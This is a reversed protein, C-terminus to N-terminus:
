RQEHMCTYFKRKFICFLMVTLHLFGSTIGAVKQVAPASSFDLYTSAIYDNRDLTTTLSPLDPWSEMDLPTPQKQLAPHGTPGDSTPEALVPVTAAENDNKKQYGAYVLTGDNKTDNPSMPDENENLEAWIKDGVQVQFDFM